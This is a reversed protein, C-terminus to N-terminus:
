YEVGTIKLSNYIIDNETIKYIPFETDPRYFYGIEYQNTEDNWFELEVKREDANIEAQTFFEQIKIKDALHIKPKTSFSWKSKKGAATIRHLDRTNEERYAKIEERQNPTSSWSELLIYNNPFITNTATARLLYGKFEGSM